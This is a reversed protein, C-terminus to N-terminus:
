QSTPVFCRQADWKGGVRACLDAINATSPAVVVAVLGHSAVSSRKVAGAELDRVVIGSNSNSQSGGNETGINTQQNTQIVCQQLETNLSTGFQECLNVATVINPAIIITIPEGAAASQTASASYVVVTEYTSTPPTFTTSGVDDVLAVQSTTSTPTPSLATGSPSTAPASSNAYSGVPFRSSFPAKSPSAPTVFTNEPRTGTLPIEVTAQVTVGAVVNEVLYTTPTYVAEFTYEGVWTSQGSCSTWPVSIQTTSPSLTVESGCYTVVPAYCAPGAPTSPPIYNAQSNTITVYLTETTAAVATVTSTAVVINTQEAVVVSGFGVGANPTSVPLVVAGGQGNQTTLSVSTCTATTNTLTTNFRPYYAAEVAYRGLFAMANVLIFAKTNM